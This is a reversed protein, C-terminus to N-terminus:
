LFYFNDCHNKIIDCPYKLIDCRFKFLQNSTLFIYFKSFLTMASKLFPMLNSTWRKFTKRKCGNLTRSPRVLGRDGTNIPSFSNRVLMSMCLFLLYRMLLVFVSKHNENSERGWSCLVILNFSFLVFYFFIQM